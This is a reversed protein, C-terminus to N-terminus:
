TYPKADCVSTINYELISDNEKKPTVNPHKM